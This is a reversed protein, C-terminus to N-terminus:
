KWLLYEFEMDISPFVIWPMPLISPSSVPYELGRHLSCLRMSFPAYVGGGQFLPSYSSSSFEGPVTGADVM